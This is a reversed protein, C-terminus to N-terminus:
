SSCALRRRTSSREITRNVGDNTNITLNDNATIEPLAGDHQGPHLAFVLRGDAHDHEDAQPM